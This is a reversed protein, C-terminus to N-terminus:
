HLANETHLLDAYDHPLQDLVHRYEAGVAERLAATVARAHQRAEAPGCGTGEEEAVRRYFEELDFREVEPAGGLCGALEAPLQAALDDAETSLRQGLVTLTARVAKDAHYHTDIRASRQVASIFEHTQM